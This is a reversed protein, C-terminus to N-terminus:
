FVGDISLSGPGVRLSVTAREEEDGANSVLDISGWVTGVLAALGGTILLVNAAIALSDADASAEVAAAHTPARMADNNRALALGGVVAGAILVAGGSGAIAWPVVDPGRARTTAPPTPDPTQRGERRLREREEELARVEAVHRELSELRARVAPADDASPAEELYDRYAEVAGELDGSGELARALNYSLLPESHLERAERLRAAADAFRGQRYLEASERFLELARARAAADGQQAGAPLACLTIILALVMTAVWTM